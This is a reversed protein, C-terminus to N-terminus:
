GLMRSIAAVSSTGNANSVQYCDSVVVETSAFGRISDASLNTAASSICFNSNAIIVGGVVNADTGDIALSMTATTTWLCNEVVCNDANTAFRMPTAWTGATSHFRCNKIHLWATAVELGVGQAGGSWFTCREVYGSAVSTATASIKAVGTANTRHGFDLGITDIDVVQTELDFFLDHFYLGPLAADVDFVIGSFASTPRITLWGVETNASQISLVEDNTGTTTLIVPLRGPPTGNPFYARPGVAGIISLGSKNVVQTATVTHTGPLLVIVDGADATANTVAQTITRIARQPSRGDNDNSANYTKGAVTYEASPAVWWVTGTVTPPAGFLTGYHSIWM